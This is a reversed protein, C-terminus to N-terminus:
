AAVPWDGVLEVADDHGVLRAPLGSAALWQTARCALVISATAAVNADVCSAAAVSVTRWCTDAPRGSRPDLLHHLEVAGAHWRRVTVSSTALGGGAIAVTVDSRDKHDDAIGIPWGGEPAEGAVAVDGGLSVLVGCGSAEAAARAARDAALAKATAGLDLEVGVPVRVSRRADDLEVTQWGAAAEFRPRFADGDRSSVVRYTTDYGALRLSRGVTPDVVGNTAAAARLAVRLAEYLYAGVPVRSGASANVRALESDSRFRSCAADVDVLERELAARAAPLRDEDAVALVATTGLAPFAVIM